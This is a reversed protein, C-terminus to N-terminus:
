PIMKQIIMWAERPSDTSVYIFYGDWTFIIFPYNDLAELVVKETLGNIDGLSMKSYMDYFEYRDSIPTISWQIYTQGEIKKGQADYYTGMGERILEAPVHAVYRGEFSWPIGNKLNVRSSEELFGNAAFDPIYGTFADPTESLSSYDFREGTEISFRSFDIPNEWIWDLLYAMTEYSDNYSGEIQYWGNVTQFTLTKNQYKRGEAVILVGDRETATVAPEVINGNEDIEIGICSKIQEIEQYGATITLYSYAELPSQILWNLLLSFLEGDETYYALCTFSIHKEMVPIVGDLELQARYDSFFRTEKYPISGEAFISSVSVGVAVDDIATDNYKFYDEASFRETWQLIPTDAAIATPTDSGIIAPIIMVVSVILCLCAAIGGYKLWPSLHNKGMMESRALLKDDAAGIAEYIKENKM